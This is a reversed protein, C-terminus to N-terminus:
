ASPPTVIASADIPQHPTGSATAAPATRAPVGNRNTLRPSSSVSFDPRM